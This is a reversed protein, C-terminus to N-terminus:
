PERLCCRRRPDRSRTPAASEIIANTVWAWIQGVIADALSKRSVDSGFSNRIEASSLTQKLEARNAPTLTAYRHGGRRFGGTFMFVGADAAGHEADAWSGACTELGDDRVQGFPDFFCSCVPPESFDVAPFGAAGGCRPLEGVKVPGRM